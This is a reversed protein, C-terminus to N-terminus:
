FLGIQHNNPTAWLLSMPAIWLRDEIKRIPAQGCILVIGCTFQMPPVPSNPPHSHAKEDIADRLAAMRKAQRPEARNGTKVEVAAVASGDASELLFDM